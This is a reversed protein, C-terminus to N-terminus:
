NNIISFIFDLIANISMMHIKVAFTCAPGNVHATQKPYPPPNVAAINVPAPVQKEKNQGGAIHEHKAPIPITPEIAVKTVHKGIQRLGVGHIANM